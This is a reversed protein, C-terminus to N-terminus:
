RRIIVGQSLATDGCFGIWLLNNNLQLENKVQSSVTPIERFTLLETHNSLTVHSECKM